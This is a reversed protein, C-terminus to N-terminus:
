TSTTGLRPTGDPATRALTVFNRVKRKLCVDSVLGLGTEPDVRPANGADPDGNPNGNVVDFLLVFDYRRTIPQADARAAAQDHTAPTLAPTDPTATNPTM